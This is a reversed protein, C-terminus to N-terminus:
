AKITEARSAPVDGRILAQYVALAGEGGAHEAYDLLSDAAGAFGDWDDRYRKEFEAQGWEQVRARGHDPAFFFQPKPGPLDSVPASDKWHAGGVRINVALQDVLHSHLRTNVGGDGAFDVFAWRAKRDLGEIDDYLVVSDYLGTGSVFDSNGASTLAHVRVGDLPMQKLLWALALATKSSASSLLIEGAGFANEERLHYAILFSTVFLPQLVMQAAERAESWAPDAACRVYRNYVPSLERRHEAMDMFSAEDARGPTVILENAAPFYGYVRDGVKVGVARSETVEAFGWVPLRCRGDSGPFFEWYRMVAGFVAYTINNATLAFRHIALRTEGGELDRPPETVLQADAIRDRDISLAWNM